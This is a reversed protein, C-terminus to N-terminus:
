NNNPNVTPKIFDMWAKENFYILTTNNRDEFQVTMSKSDAELILARVDTHGERGDNYIIYSGATFQNPTM